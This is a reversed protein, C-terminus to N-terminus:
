SQVKRLSVIREYEARQADTMRNWRLRADSDQQRKEREANVIRLEAKLDEIQARLSAAQAELDDHSLESYEPM